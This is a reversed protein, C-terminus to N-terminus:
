AGTRTMESLIYNCTGNVIGHLSLIRNAVLGENLAKIIPIGGAVSAEFYIATNHKRALAFLEEGHEALLAKNATVVIKGGKLAQSVLKRAETTGGMLEVVIQISDDAVIEQWTKAWLPAAISIGRKKTRSRALVRTVRIRHGIRESLLRGNRELHKFVGQGVTGLGILGVNVTQM